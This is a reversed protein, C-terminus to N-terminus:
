NNGNAKRWYDIFHEAYMVVFAPWFAIFVIAAAIRSAAGGSTSLAKTAIATIFVVVGAVLYICYWEM